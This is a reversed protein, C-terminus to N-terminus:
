QQTINITQATHKPDDTILMIHPVTKGDTELQAPIVTIKLKASKGPEIARNDLAVSMGRSSLAMQQIHLTTQGDNTITILSSAKKKKAMEKTIVVHEPLLRMQPARALQTPTLHAYSPLILASVRIENDNGIRDDAHRALYISAEKLGYDSFYKSHFTLRITGTEGGHLHKPMYEATIYPPLHMLLPTYISRETGVLMIETVATDGLTVTGFDVINTSMKVVGLDIPMDCDIALHERVVRGEMTLWLPTENDDLFLAMEKHFFGLQGADYTLSATVESRPQIVSSSLSAELCGCSVETRSIHLPKTGNNVITYRATVPEQYIVEGMHRVNGESVVQATMSTYIISCTLAIALLRQTM